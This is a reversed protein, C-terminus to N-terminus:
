HNLRTPYLTNWLGDLLPFLAYSSCIVASLIGSDNFAFAILAGVGIALMGKRFIPNHIRWNKLANKLLKNHEQNYLFILLLLQLLLAKGWISTYLLRMNTGLKRGIIEQIEAWGNSAESFILSATQGMHSQLEAPRLLDYAIFGTLGLVVTGIIVLIIKGNIKKERLLLLLFLYAAISAISGGVNTGLSPLAMILVAAFCLFGAGAWFIKRHKQLPLYLSTIGWILAGLCAGMYENGIGYFRAGIIPDYSFLSSKQLVSGSLTDALILGALLIGLVLWGHGTKHHLRVFIFTLFATLLVFEGLILWLNSGPLLPLLLLVLPMLPVIFLCPKLYQGFRFQRWLLIWALILLTIQLYIYIKTVIPRTDNNVSLQKAMAQLTLLSNQDFQIIGPMRGDIEAPIECNLWSLFAPVLDTNDILGPRRTTPSFLLGTPLNRNYFVTWTVKDNKGDESVQCGPSPVTVALLDEQPDIIELLSGLFQDMRLLTAQNMDNIRPLSLYDWNYYIRSFDGLDIVILSSQEAVEQYYQLLRDYDTHFGNIFNDDDILTEAGIYGRDVLGQSDMAALVGPKQLNTKSYDSNGLVATQLQHKHLTEGLSGLILDHNSNSNLNYLHNVKLTFISGPSPSTGNLWLYEDRALTQNGPLKQCIDEYSYASLSQDSAKLKIGSGMTLYTNKTNISGSTRCNVLAVAGQQWLKQFNPLQEQQLLELSMKDILVWVVKKGNRGELAQFDKSDIPPLLNNLNSQAQAPSSIFLLIILILTLKKIKNM